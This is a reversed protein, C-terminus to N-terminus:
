KQESPPSDIATGSDYQRIKTLSQTIFALMTNSFNGLILLGVVLKQTGSLQSWNKGELAASACTAVSAVAFFVFYFIILWWALVALKARSILQNM